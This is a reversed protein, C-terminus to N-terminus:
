AGQVISYLWKSLLYKKRIIFFYPGFTNRAGDDGDGIRGSEKSLVRKQQWSRCPKGDGM